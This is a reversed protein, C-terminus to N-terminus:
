LQQAAGVRNLAQAALAVRFQVLGLPGGQCDEPSDPFADALERRDIRAERRVEVRAVADLGLEIIERECKAVERGADIRRRLTQLLDFIPERQDLPELALVAARKFVRDRM